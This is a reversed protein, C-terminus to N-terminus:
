NKEARCVQVYAHIVRKILDFQKNQIWEQKFISSGFAIADAGKSFYSALNEPNVGGCALLKVNDFPGKIEKFYDPGFFKSPFVKVMAPKFSWAHYIESPTLAGPFFPIHKDRCYISVEEICVPTVIFSAGADLAAKLSVMDVVTGAGIMLRGAYSRAAESILRAAEPTNMTIEITELGSECVADLLPRLADKTVGRLIGMMPLRKFRAEDM